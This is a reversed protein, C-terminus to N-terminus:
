VIFWIVLVILVLFILTELWSGVKLPGHMRYKRPYFLTVGEKTMADALLHSAYGILFVIILNQQNFIVQIIVTFFIMAFISHFVGRHKFLWAFIKTKRGIVSKSNDIDPLIAAILLLVAALVKSEGLLGTFESLVFLLIVAIALHTGGMM